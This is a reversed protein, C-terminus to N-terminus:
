RIPTLLMSILADGLWREYHPGSWGREVVLQQHLHSGTMAWLIELAQDRSLGQVLRGSGHLMTALEAEQELRRDQVKRYESQLESDGSEQAFRLLAGLRESVITATRAVSRLWMEPDPSRIAEAIADHLGEVEFTTWIIERALGLKNGFVAYVTQYAVGAEEAIEAMTVTNYGQSVFLRRAVEAIGRRTQRAQEERRRNNYTRRKVADKVHDLNCM